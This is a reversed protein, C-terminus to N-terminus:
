ILRDVPRGPLGGNSLDNARSLAPALFVIFTAAALSMWLTAGRLPQVSM